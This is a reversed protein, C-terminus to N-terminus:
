DFFLEVFYLHHLCIVKLHFLDGSVIIYKAKNKIANDILDRFSIFFDEYRIDLPGWFRYAMMKM